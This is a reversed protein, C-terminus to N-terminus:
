RFNPIDAPQVRLVSWAKNALALEKDQQDKLQQILKVLDINLAKIEQEIAGEQRLFNSKDQQKLEQETVLKDHNAISEKLKQEKQQLVKEMEYYFTEGYIQKEEELGAEFTSTSEELTGREVKNDLLQRNFEKIEETIAKQK